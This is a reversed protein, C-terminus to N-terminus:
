GLFRTKLESSPLFCSARKGAIRYRNKAVFRYVTDRLGSPFILGISLLPWPKPLVKIVQFFADSYIYVDGNRIYVMTEINESSLGIANLISQGFDSQVSCFSFKKQFDRKILFQVWGSCLHCLGDFLIIHKYNSLIELKLTENLYRSQDDVTM